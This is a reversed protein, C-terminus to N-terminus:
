CLQFIVSHRNTHKIGCGYEFQGKWHQIMWYCHYGGYRKDLQLDVVSIRLICFLVLTPTWQWAFSLTLCITNTWAIDFGQIQQELAPKKSISLVINLLSHSQLWNDSWLLKRAFFFVVSMMSNWICTICSYYLDKFYADLVLVNINIILKGSIIM